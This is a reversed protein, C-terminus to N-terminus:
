NKKKQALWSRFAPDYTEIKRGLCDDLLKSASGGGDRYAARIFSLLAIRGSVSSNSPGAQTKPDMLFAIFAVSAAWRYPSVNEGGYLDDFTYHVLQKLGKWGNRKIASQAGMRGTVYDFAMDVEVSRITEGPAAAAHGPQGGFSLGFTSGLGIELWAATRDNVHRIKVDPRSKERSDGKIPYLTQLLAETTTEFIRHGRKQVPNFYTFVTGDGAAPDFYSDLRNSIKRFDGESPKLNVEIKPFVDLADVGDGLEDHWYIYFRELDMLTDIAFRLGSLSKLAFNESELVPADNWGRPPKEFERLSVTRDGNRFRWEGGVKVNGALQNAAEHGPDLLVVHLAQIRAVDHLGVASADQALKWSAAVDADITPTRKALFTKLHDRVTVMSVIDTRSLIHRQGKQFIVVQDTGHREVVRCRIELTKDDLQRAAIQPGAKKVVVVDRVDDGVQSHGIVASLLVGLLIMRTRMMLVSM